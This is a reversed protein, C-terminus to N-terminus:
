RGHSNEFRSAMTAAFSQEHSSLPLMGEISNAELEVSKGLTGFGCHVLIGRFARQLPVGCGFLGPITFRDRGCPLALPLGGGRLAFVGRGFLGLDFSPCSAKETEHLPDRHVSPCVRVSVRERLWVGRCRFCLPSLSTISYSLSSMWSGVVVGIPDPNKTKFLGSRKM